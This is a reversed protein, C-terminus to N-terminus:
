TSSDVNHNLDVVTAVAPTWDRPLESLVRADTWTMVPLPQAPALALGAITFDAHLVPNSSGFSTNVKIKLDHTVKIYKGTTYDFASTPIVITAFCKNRELITVIDEEPEPLPM